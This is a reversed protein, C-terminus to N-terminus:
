ALAPLQPHRLSWDGLQPHTLEWAGDRASVLSWAAAQAADTGTWTLAALV